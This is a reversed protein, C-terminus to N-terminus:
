VREYENTALDLKNVLSDWLGDAQSVLGKDEARRLARRELASGLLAGLKSGCWVGGLLSVAVLLHPIVVHGYLNLLIEIIGFFLLPGLIGGAIKMALTLNEASRAARDLALIKIEARIGYSIFSRKAGSVYAVNQGFNTQLSVEYSNTTLTGALNGTEGDQLECKPRTVHDALSKMAKKIRADIETKHPRGSELGDCPLKLTRQYVQFAESM